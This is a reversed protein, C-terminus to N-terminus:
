KTEGCSSCKYGVVVEADDIWVNEQGVVRQENHSSGCGALFQEDTLSAIHNQMGDSQPDFAQGCGNCVIMEKYINKTDYHGSSSYVPQWDHVHVSTTANSTDTSVNAKTSSESSINADQSSAINSSQSTVSSSSSNSNSSITSSEKKKKEPSSSLKSNQSSKSANETSKDSNKQEEKVTIKLTVDTAVGSSNEAHYKVAYSGAKKTSVNSTITYWGNQYKSSDDPAEDVYECGAADKVYSKADFEAGVTVTDETKVLKFAPATEDVVTFTVSVESTSDNNETDKLTFLVTVDGVVSTDIVEPYVKEVEVGDAVYAKEALEVTKEDEATNDTRKKTSEDDSKEEKDAESSASASPTPFATESAEDTDELRDIAVLDLPDVPDGDKTYAITTTTPTVSFKTKETENCGTLTSLTTTTLVITFTKKLINTKM